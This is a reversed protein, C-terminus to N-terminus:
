KSEAEPNPIAVGPFYRRYAANVARAAEEKTDFTGLHVKKRDHMMEALWRSGRRSTQVGRYGSTNNRRINSNVVNFGKTVKRLNFDANNLPNRDVHDVQEGKDTGFGYLTKYVFNHLYVITGKMRTIAYGHGDMSWAYRSVLEAIDDNVVSYGVVVNGRNRGQDNTIGKSTQRGGRLEIKAM